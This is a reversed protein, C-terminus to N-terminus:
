LVCVRIFDVLHQRNNEFSVENVNRYHFLSLIFLFAM